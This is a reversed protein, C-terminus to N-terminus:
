NAELRTTSAGVAANADANAKAKADLAPPESARPDAVPPTTGDSAPPAPQAAAESAAPDPVVPPTQPEITSPQEAPADQARLTGGWVLLACSAGFGIWRRANM